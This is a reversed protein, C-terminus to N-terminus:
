NLNLIKIRKKLSNVIAVPKDMNKPTICITKTKNTDTEYIINLRNVKRIGSGSEVMQKYEIIKKVKNWPILTKSITISSDTITIRYTIKQYVIFIGFAIIIIPILM